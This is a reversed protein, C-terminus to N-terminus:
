KDAENTIKKKTEFDDEEEFLVSTFGKLMPNLFMKKSLSYILLGLLLYFVATIVYGILESGTIKHFWHIFGLSLFLLFFFLFFFFIIVVLFKTFMKSFREILILSYLETKLNIYERIDKLSGEFHKNVNEKNM